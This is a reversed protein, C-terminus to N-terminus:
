NSEVKGYNNILITRQNTSDALQITGSASSAGSYLSFDVESGLDTTLNLVTPYNFAQDYNTDRSAYAAGKFLIFQHNSTDFFVGWGAGNQGAIAQQRARRMTTTLGDANSALGSATQFSQSIPIAFAAVVALLAIVLLLEILSFGRM